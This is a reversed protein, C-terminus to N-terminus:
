PDSGATYHDRIADCVKAMSLALAAFGLSVFAVLACALIISNSLNCM